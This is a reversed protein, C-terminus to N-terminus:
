KEELENKMKNKMNDFTEMITKEPVFVRAPKDNVFVHHLGSSWVKGDLARAASISLKAEIVNAVGLKNAYEQAEEYSYKTTDFVYKHPTNSEKALILAVGEGIRQRKYPGKVENLLAVHESMM